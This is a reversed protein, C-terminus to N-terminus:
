QSLASAECSIRCINQSCEMVSVDVGTSDALAPLAGLQSAQQHSAPQTHVDQNQSMGMMQNHGAATHMSGMGGYGINPMAAVNGQHLAQQQQQYASAQQQQQKSTLKTRVGARPLFPGVCATPPIHRAHM